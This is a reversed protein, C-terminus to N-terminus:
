SVVVDDLNKLTVSYFSPNEMARYAADSMRGAAIDSEMASLVLADPPVGASLDLFFEGARAWVDASGTDVVFPLDGYIKVGVGVAARHAAQWQGDVLWQVYQEFLM